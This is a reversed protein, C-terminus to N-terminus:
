CEASRAALVAGRALRHPGRPRPHPTGPKELDVEGVAACEVAYAADDVVNPARIDLPSSGEGPTLFRGAGAPLARLADRLREDVALAGDSIGRSLEEESPTDDAGATPFRLVEVPYWARLVQGAPVDQLGDSRRRSPRYLPRLLSKPGGGPELGSALSRRVVMREAFLSDGPAPLFERLLGQVVGYRPPIPVLVEKLSEARPWWFEGREAEIVWDAGHQDAALRALEARGAQGETPVLTLRDGDHRELLARVTEDSREYGAVVEDVGASLHFAVQADLM